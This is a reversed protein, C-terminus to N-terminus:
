SSQGGSASGGGKLQQTVEEIQTVAEKAERLRDLQDHWFGSGAAAGIGSLVIGPRLGLLMSVFSGFVWPFGLTPDILDRGEGAEARQNMMRREIIQEFSYWVVRDEKRARFTDAANGLVPELLQFSDIQLSVALIVGVVASMIRLWTIRRDEEQKQRADVELVRQGAERLTKVPPLTHPNELYQEYEKLRKQLNDLDKVEDPLRDRLWDGLYQVRVMLWGLWAKSWPADRLYRWLKRAPSAQIRSRQREVEELTNNLLALHSELKAVSVGSLRNVTSVLWAHVSEVQEPELAEELQPEIENWHKRLVVDTSQVALDKLIDLWREEVVVRVKEAEEEFSQTLEELDEISKQVRNEAEEPMGLDKVMGPLWTQLKKFAEKASTKGQLGFIPRTADVVVETGVALVAMMAAYLGLTGLVAGADLGANDDGDQAIPEAHVAVPTLAILLAVLALASILRKM